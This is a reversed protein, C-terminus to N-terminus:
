RKSPSPASEPKQARPHRSDPAPKWADPRLKGGWGWYVPAAAKRQYQPPSAAGFGPSPDLPQSVILATQHRARSRTQVPIYVPVPVAVQEVVPREHEIVIVQPQPPEPEVAPWPPMAAEQPMRGSRVMAEIVRDGVGAAKLSKLTETDITFVSGDVEILALLVEEGLGARTLDIIDKATVAEARVASLSLVALALFLARRM